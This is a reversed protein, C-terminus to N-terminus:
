CADLVVHMWCRTCGAGTRAHGRKQRSQRATDPGWQAARGRAARDCEKCVEARNDRSESGPIGKAEKEARAM